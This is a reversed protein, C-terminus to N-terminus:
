IYPTSIMIENTQVETKFIHFLVTIVYVGLLGRMKQREKGPSLGGRRTLMHVKKKQFIVM